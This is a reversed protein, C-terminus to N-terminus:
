VHARGIEVSKAHRGLGFNHIFWWTEILDALKVIAGINHDSDQYPDFKQHTSVTGLREKTPTPIDGTVVEDIDHMLAAAMVDPKSLSPILYALEMAIMAVNFSHEAVSQPRSTEVIHWRNVGQARLTDQISLDLNEM